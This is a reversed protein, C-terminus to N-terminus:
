RASLKVSKARPWSSNIDIAFIKKAVQVGSGRKWKRVEAVESVRVREKESQRDRDRQAARSSSSFITKWNCNEENRRSQM